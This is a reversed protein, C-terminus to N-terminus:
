AVIIEKVMRRLLRDAKPPLVPALCDRLARLEESIRQLSELKEDIVDVVTMERCPQCYGMPDTIQGVSTPSIMNKAQPMPM